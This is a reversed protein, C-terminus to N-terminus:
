TTGGRGAALADRIETLLELETPPATEDKAQRERFKNMPLVIFFYLAAAILIFNLLANLVIGISFDADNITFTGVSSLDPQGFIAAILPNIIGDLIAGILLTIAAAIVVAVALDVVNGRWVFDKFGKV